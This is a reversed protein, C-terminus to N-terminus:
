FSQLNSRRWGSSTKVYLYDEDRTLNGISGNTDTSGSPTYTPITIAKPKFDNNTKWNGEIDTLLEASLDQGLAHLVRIGGEVATEQSGGYNLDINNDEALISQTELYTNGSTVEGATLEKIAEVLIPIIDNTHIGMYQDVPNTFTLKPEISEVQQAIFGYRVSDGGSYKDKWQYTVGSLGKIVDLAKSISNINEKLRIDSTNTTLTGDSTYHLAGASASSGISRFRANGNVDLTQTPSNGSLAVYGRTVGSGQIHIHPLQTGALSSPNAGAYFRIYNDNNPYGSAVNKIINLGNSEISCYIFSNGGNGYGPYGTQNSGLCGIALGIDGVGSSKDLITLQTFGSTNGSVIFQNVISNESIYANMLGNVSRVEFASTPDVNIGLKNNGATNNIPVISNTLTGATWYSTYGSLDPAWAGKGESDVCKWVYGIQPSKSIILDETRTIGSVDVWITRGSYDITGASYYELINTHVSGSYAGGGLDIMALGVIDFSVGSYDIAYTYGDVTTGTTNAIFVVGTNQTTASNLPTIASLTNEAIAMNSDYWSFVTTASNGSFTSVLNTYTQTIATTTIDPGKTLSSYPIGFQTGGSLSTFLKEYQKVQRNSSFDLKTIFPM